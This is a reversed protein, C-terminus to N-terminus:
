SEPHGRAKAVAAMTKAVANAVADRVAVEEMAAEVAVAEAEERALEAVRAAVLRAAMAETALPPPETALDHLRSRAVVPDFLVRATNGAPKCLASTSGQAHREVATPKFYSTGSKIFHDERLDAIGWADWEKQTFQTRLALNIELKENVIERGGVPSITGINHWKLGSAAPAGQNHREASPHEGAAGHHEGTPSCVQPAANGAHRAFLKEFSSAIKEDLRELKGCVKEELVDDLIERVDDATLPEDDDDQSSCFRVISRDFHQKM